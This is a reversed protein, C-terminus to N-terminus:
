TAISTIPLTTEMRSVSILYNRLMYRLHKNEASLKNCEKKMSINDVKIHNYRMWFKELKQFPKSM